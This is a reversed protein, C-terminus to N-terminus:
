SFLTQRLMAECWNQAHRFLQNDRFFIINGWSGPVSRSRNCYYSIIADNNLHYIVIYWVYGRSKMEAVLNETHGAGSLGFPHRPDWFETMVVSYDGHGMGRVIEIDFGETDVKVFGAEAPVTGQSQLSELSRVEVSLNEKFELGPMLSHDVLSNYLTPDPFGRKGSTDAAIHLQMTGDQPGLGVRFAQFDPNGSFRSQLNNFAAEFPEFAFVKFGSELLRASFNGVNAGVDIANRNPLYSFLYQALAIEPEQPNEDQVLLRIPMMEDSRGMLDQIRDKLGATAEGVLHRLQDNNFSIGAIDSALGAINSTVGSIAKGVQSELADVRQAGQSRAAEIQTVLYDQVAHLQDSYGQQFTTLLSRTEEHNGAQSRVLTDAVEGIRSIQEATHAISNTVRQVEADINKLDLSLTRQLEQTSKSLRDVALLSESAANLMATDNLMLSATAREFFDARALVADTRHLGGQTSEYLKGLMWRANHMESFHLNVVKVVKRVLPIKSLFSSM